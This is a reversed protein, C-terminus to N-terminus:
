TILKGNMLFSKQLVSHRSDDRCHRKISPPIRQKQPKNEIRDCRPTNRFTSSTAESFIPVIVSFLTEYLGLISRLLRGVYPKLLAKRISNITIHSNIALKLKTGSVPQYCNTKHHSKQDTNTTSRIM